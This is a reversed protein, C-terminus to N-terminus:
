NCLGASFIGNFRVGLETVKELRVLFGFGARVVAVHMAMYLLKM